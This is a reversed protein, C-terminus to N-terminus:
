YISFVPTNMIWLEHEFNYRVEVSGGNDGPTLLDLQSQSPSLAVPPPPSPTTTTTADAAVEAGAEVAQLQVAAAVEASSEVGGAPAATVQTQAAVVVAVAVTLPESRLRQATETISDEVEILQNKLKNISAESTPTLTQATEVCKKLLVLTKNCMVMLKSAQLLFVFTLLYRHSFPFNLLIRVQQIIRLVNEDRNEEELATPKAAPLANVDEDTDYDLVEVRVDNAFTKSTKGKLSKLTAAAIERQM